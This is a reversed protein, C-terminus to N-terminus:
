DNLIYFEDSSVGSYYKCKVFMRTTLFYSIHYASQVFFALVRESSVLLFSVRDGIDLHFSKTGIM